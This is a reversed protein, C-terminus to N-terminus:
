PGDMLFTRLTKQFVLMELGRNRVSLNDQSQELEEKSINWTLIAIYTCWIQTPWKKFFFTSCFNIKKVWIQARIKAVKM